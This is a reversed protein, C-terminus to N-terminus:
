RQLRTTMFSTIRQVSARVTAPPTEVVGADFRHGVGPYVVLEISTGALRASAVLAECAPASVTTDNAGVQLLM